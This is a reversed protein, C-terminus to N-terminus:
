PRWYLLPERAMVVNQSESQAPLGSSLRDVVLNPIYKPEFKIEQNALFCCITELDLVYTSYQAKDRAVVSIYQSLISRLSSWIKKGEGRTMLHSLEPASAKAELRTWWARVFCMSTSMWKTLFFTVLPSM